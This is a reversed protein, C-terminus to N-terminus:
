HRPSKVGSVTALSVTPDTVIVDPALSASVLAKKMSADLMFIRLEPHTKMFARARDWGMAFIATCWADADAGHTSVITVSSIDTTVPRGTVPSLIHAYRKGDKEFYREYAGSTIVSADHAGVVAFYAGREKDPRQIGIKWNKNDTKYGILVVNGGLDLLGHKMGAAVLAEAMKQGIYGKAIAGMDLSQGPAIRIFWQGSDDQTVCVKTYDVLSVAKDIQTQSPVKDGGFGIKWLNVVTGITPEFAGESARALQLARLTMEAIEPTVPVAQGSLRNVENLATQKHVSMMDDFRTVEDEVIRAYRKVAEPSDGFVRAKILTGMHLSNWQLSYEQAAPAQVATTQAPEASRAYEPLGAMMVLSLAAFLTKKLAMM